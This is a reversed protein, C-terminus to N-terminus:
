SAGPAFDNTFWEEPKQGDELLGAGVLEQYTETWTAPDTTAVKDAGAATLSEVYGALAAKGVEPDALTPVKYKGSITSMTKAFGSEQDKIMFAVAADIARLYRKLQDQKKPDKAQDKSTLYLQAGSTIADNPDYIVSDPEQQELAIATDLSVVYSDIRGSKVLNFIGPALGVVQRKTGTPKLGASALVLDLTTESTGGASPLGVTKDGFDAAKTLPKDKGSVFRITGHKTTTGINVIPAGKAADVMTEIDGVRTILAKGAIVTQIAPASGKTAEFSVDLGEKKFYGGADALLEPAFSLSELPLINLFTVKDLGAAKKTSGPDSAAGTSSGGCGALMTAALGLAVATTVQALRAGSPRSSRSTKGIM